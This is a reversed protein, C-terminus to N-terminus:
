ANKRREILLKGCLFCFIFKKLPIEARIISHYIDKYVFDKHEAELHDCIPFTM